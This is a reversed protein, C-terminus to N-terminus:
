IRDGLASSPGGNLAEKSDVFVGVIAHPRMHDKEISVSPVALM